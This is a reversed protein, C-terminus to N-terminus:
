FCDETLNSPIEKLFRSPATSIFNGEGSKKRASSTIYLEKEARTMAVYYMRREEELEELRFMAYEPNTEIVEWSM